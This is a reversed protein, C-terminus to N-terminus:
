TATTEDVGSLYPPFEALLRQSLGMTEMLAPWLMRTREHLLKISDGKLWLDVNLRGGQPRQEILARLELGMIAYYPMNHWEVEDPKLPMHPLFYLSRYMRGDLMRHQPTLALAAGSVRMDGGDGDPIVVEGVNPLPRIRIDRWLLEQEPVCGCEVSIDNFIQEPVAFFRQIIDSLSM